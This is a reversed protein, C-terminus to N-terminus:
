GVLNFGGWFTLKNCECLCVFMLVFFFVFLFFFVFFLCCFMGVLGDHVESFVYFNQNAYKKKNEERNIDQCFQDDVRRISGFTAIIQHRIGLDRVLETIRHKDALTHGRIQAVTTERVSNDLVFVDLNKLREEKRRAAKLTEEVLSAEKGVAALALPPPPPPSLKSSSLPKASAIEASKEEEHKNLAVKSEAPLINKPQTSSSRKRSEKHCGNGMKKTTPNTPQSHIECELSESRLSGLIDGFGNTTEDVFYIM